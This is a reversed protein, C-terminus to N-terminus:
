HRTDSDFTSDSGDLDADLQVSDEEMKAHKQLVRQIIESTDDDSAEDTAREAMRTRLVGPDVSGGVMLRTDEIKDFGHKAILAGAERKPDHNM